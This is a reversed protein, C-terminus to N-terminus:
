FFNGGLESDQVMGGVNWLSHVLKGVCLTRNGQRHSFWVVTSPWHEGLAKLCEVLSTVNPNLSHTLMM